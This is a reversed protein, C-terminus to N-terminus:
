KNTLNIEGLIQDSFRYISRKATLYVSGFYPHTMVNKVWWQMNNEKDLFDLLYKLSETPKIHGLMIKQIEVLMFSDINNEWVNHSDNISYKEFLEKKTM